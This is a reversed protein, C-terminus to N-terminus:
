VSAPALALLVTKIPERGVLDVSVNCRTIAYRQGLVSAKQVYREADNLLRPMPLVEIVKDGELKQVLYFVITEAMFDDVAM